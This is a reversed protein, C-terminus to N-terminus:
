CGRVPLGSARAAAGLQDDHTLVLLREGSSQSWLMATALHLADLTGVTTPFPQAARTLISPALAILQVQDLLEYLAEHRRVLEAETLSGGIRLRDLTRLCEVRLLDNSLLETVEEAEIPDPEGLVLRLAVSSDLYAIM